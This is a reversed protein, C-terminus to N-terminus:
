KILVDNYIKDAIEFIKRSEDISCTKVKSKKPYGWVNFLKPGLWTHYETNDFIGKIISLSAKKNSM